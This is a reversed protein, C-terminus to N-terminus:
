MFTSNFRQKFKNYVDRNRNASAEGYGETCISFIDDSSLIDSESIMGKIFNEAGKNTASFVGGIPVNDTKPSISELGSSIGMGLIDEKTESFAYKNFYETIDNEKEYLIYESIEKYKKAKRMHSNITNLANKSYKASDILENAKNIYYTSMDIYEAVIMYFGAHLRYSNSEILNKDHSFAGEIYPAVFNVIGGSSLLSIPNFMSFIHSLEVRLGTLGLSFSADKLLDETFICNDSYLADIEEKLKNHYELDISSEVEFGGVKVGEKDILYVEEGQLMAQLKQNNILDNTTNSSPNQGAEPKPEIDPTITDGGTGPDTTGGGTGPDTTGDSTGSDPTPIPTPNSDPTPTPDPDPTPEPEPGPSPATPNPDPDVPNSPTSTPIIQRLHPYSEGEKISWIRTFDWEPYTQSYQMQSTTLGILSWTETGNAGIEQTISYGLGNDLGSSEMNWYSNVIKNSPSSSHNYSGGIFGGVGADQGADHVSACSYSNEIVADTLFIGVFGGANRGSVSGLSYSDQITGSWHVGVLGGIGGETGAIVSGSVTSNSFCYRVTGSSQGLLGGVGSVGSVSGQFSCQSIISSEEINDGVLGGTFRRETITEKDDPLLISSVTGNVSVNEINIEHRRHDAGGAIGVLGGVCSGGTISINKLILNKIYGDTLQSFLGIYSQEPRNIYLGDIYHGLGNFKGVFDRFGNVHYLHPARHLRGIPDFGEGNNWNRTIDASIDTALAYNGFSDNDINQLSLIDHIM